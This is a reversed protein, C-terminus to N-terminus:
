FREILLVKLGTLSLFYASSLGCAGAGIVAVDYKKEESKNM